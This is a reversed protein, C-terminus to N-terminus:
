AERPQLHRSPTPPATSTGIVAQTLGRMLNGGAYANEISTRSDVDVQVGRQPVLM